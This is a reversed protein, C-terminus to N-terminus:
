AFSTAVFSGAMAIARSALDRALRSFSPTLNTGSTSLDPKMATACGGCSLIASSSPGWATFIRPMVRVIWYHAVGKDLRRVPVQFPRGQIRKLAHQHHQAADAQCAERQRRQDLEDRPFGAM